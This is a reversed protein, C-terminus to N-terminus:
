LKFGSTAKKLKKSTENLCEATKAVNNMATNNEKSRSTILEVSSSLENSALKQESLAKAIESVLEQVLSTAKNIDGISERTIKTTDVVLSSTECSNKMSIVTSAANEQIDSIMVAIKEVSSTTTAALNRVEDAVVAFGRGQEGARAAEIAANLALLNTQAAVDQIVGTISTIEKVQESLSEVQQSTSQLQEFVQQIGAEAQSVHGSSISAAKEAEIARGNTNESNRGIDEISVLIQGLVSVSNTLGHMQEAISQATNNSAKELQQGYDDVKNAAEMIGGIMNSLATRMQEMSNSLMGFEDKRISFESPTLDGSAIKKAAEMNENLPRTIRKQFWISFLVYLIISTIYLFSLFTQLTSLGQQSSKYEKEASAGIKVLLEQIAGSFEAYQPIAATVIRVISDWDNNEMVTVIPYGGADMYSDYQKKLERIEAVHPVDNNIYNLVVQWGQEAKKIENKVTNLHLEYPHAHYHAVSLKNDHMFGAYSHFRANKLAGDIAVLQLLVNSNIANTRDLARAGESSIWNLAVIPTLLLIVVAAAHFMLTNKVSINM